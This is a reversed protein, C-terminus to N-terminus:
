KSFLKLCQAVLQNKMPFLEEISLVRELTDNTFDAHWVGKGDRLHVFSRIQNGDADTFNIQEILDITTTQKNM